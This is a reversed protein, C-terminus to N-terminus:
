VDIAEYQINTVSKISVKDKKISLAEGFNGDAFKKSLLVINRRDGEEEDSFLSSFFIIADVDFHEQIYETLVQTPIYDRTKNDNAVPKSIEKQMKTIVDYPTDTYDPKIGKEAYKDDYGRDFVTFDFVRIDRELTFEGIAIKESIYPQLERMAVEPAFAAYFAPIHQVNMRGAIAIDAPPAGLEKTPNKRVKEGTLGNTLKRARFIPTGKSISYVPRRGERSYERDNLGFLDDLQKKINFFRTGYIVSECFDRWQFWVRNEYWYDEWELKEREEATEILEYNATDDYFPEEGNQPLCDDNEILIKTVANVILSESDSDSCMLERYIIDELPDGYTDDSPGYGLYKAGLYYRKRFYGDFYECFEKLELTNCGSGHDESFDCEARTGNTRIISSLDKDGLCRSCIKLSDIDAEENIM